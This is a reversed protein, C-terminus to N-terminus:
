IYDWGTSVLNTDSPGHNFAPKALSANSPCRLFKLLYDQPIDKPWLGKFPGIPNQVRQEKKKGLRSTFQSDSDCAGTIFHQSAVPGFAMSGVAM